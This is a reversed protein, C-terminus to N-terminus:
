EIILDGAMNEHVDSPETLYCGMDWRGKKDPVVWEIRVTERPGIDRYLDFDSLEFSHKQEREENTVVFVVRSGAKVRIEKPFTNDKMTVKIEKAAVAAPSPSAQRAPASTPTPTPTNVVTGREPIPTPTNAVIAPASTPTPAAAGQTQGPGGGGSSCAALLISAGVVGMAVCRARFLKATKM